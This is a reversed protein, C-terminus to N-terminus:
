VAEALTIAEEEAFKLLTLLIGFFRDGNWLGQIFSALEDAGWRRFVFLVDRGNSFQIYRLPPVFTYQADDAATAIM